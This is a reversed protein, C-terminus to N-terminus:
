LNPNFINFFLFYLWLNPHSDVPCSKILIERPELGWGESGIFCHQRIIGPIEVSISFVTQNNYSLINEFLFKIDNLPAQLDKGVKIIGHNQSRIISTEECLKKGLFCLTTDMFNM